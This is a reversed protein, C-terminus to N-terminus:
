AGKANGVTFRNQITNKYLRAPRKVAWFPGSLEAREEATAAARVVAAAPVAVGALGALGARRLEAGRILPVVDDADVVAHAGVDARAPGGAALAKPEHHARARKMLRRPGSRHTQLKRFRVGPFSQRKGSLSELFPMLFELRMASCLACARLTRHVTASPPRARLGVVRVAVVVAHGAEASASSPPSTM